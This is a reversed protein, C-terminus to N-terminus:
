PPSQGSGRSVTSSEWRPRLDYDCSAASSGGATSVGGRPVSRGAGFIEDASDDIMPSSILKEGAPGVVDSLGDNSRKAAGLASELSALAVPGM